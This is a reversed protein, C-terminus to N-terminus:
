TAFSKPIHYGRLQGASDFLPTTVVGAWFEGGDQRLRWGEHYSRGEAVAVRLSEQPAGAKVDAPSYFTSFHQGVIALSQYGMLQEAGRNWSKVLGQANILFIAYDKVGEVLLRYRLESEALAASREEVLRELNRNLSQVQAQAKKYDDIDTSTGCWQLIRGDEGRIPLARSLHWRYSNDSARKLRLECTFPSQSELAKRWERGATEWDDPEVFQSIEQITSSGTYAYWQRNCYEADGDANSTWVIQPMADALRRFSRESESLRQEAIKTATIDFNVGSM